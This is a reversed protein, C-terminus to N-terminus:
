RRRLAAAPPDCAQEHDAHEAAEIQLTSHELGFRERLLTTARDLVGHPGCDATTCGEDSIVLHASVAPSFYASPRPLGAGSIIERPM